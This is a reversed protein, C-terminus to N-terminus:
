EEMSTLEELSGRLGEYRRGGLRRKARAEVALLARRAEARQRLGKATLRVIKARGDSPDDTRRVFGQATLEDIVQMMRQKTTQARNALEGLRTGARDILLMTQVQSPRVDSIGRDRIAAAIEQDLSRFAELLM